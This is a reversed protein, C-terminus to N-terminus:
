AKIGLKQMLFEAVVYQQYYNDSRDKLTHWTDPKCPAMASLEKSAASLSDYSLARKDDVEDVELEKMKKVFSTMQSPYNCYYFLVRYVAWWQKKNRFLLQEDADKEKLLEEIASKIDKDSATLSSKKEGNIIQIGIGGNEVNNVEYEVKKELVLDGAVSIGGKSIAQLAVRLEEQNM